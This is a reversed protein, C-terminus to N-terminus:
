AVPAGVLAVWGACGAVAGAAVAPAVGSLLGTAGLAVAIQMLAFATWELAASRGSAAPMHANVMQGIWGALVVFGYALAVPKGALALAGLAVAVLLWAIAAGVFARPVGRGDGARRLLDVVDFAYAAAAVGVAIGGIWAVVANGIGSGIALLLGGALTATGVVIHILPFRSRVGTMERVTRASVGYVLLSLWGFFALNAHASALAALWPAAVLGSYGLALAFGIAAVLALLAVAISFARAVAREVRSGDRAQRLTVLAVGAYLLIGAVLLAAAAASFRPAFPLAVVLALTGAAIGALSAGTVPLSRWAVGTVHPVIAPLLALATVTFWGLAVLHVWALGAASLVGAGDHVAIWLLVLWSAGQCGAAFTRVIGVARM